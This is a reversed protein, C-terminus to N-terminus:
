CSFGALTINKRLAKPRSVHALLGGPLFAGGFMALFHGWTLRWEPVHLLYVYNGDDVYDGAASYHLMFEGAGVLVAAVIGIIGTIIIMRHNPTEDM